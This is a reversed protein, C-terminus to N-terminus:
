PRLINMKITQNIYLSGINRINLRLVLINGIDSMKVKHEDKMRNGTEGTILLYDSAQIKTTIISICIYLKIMYIYYVTM